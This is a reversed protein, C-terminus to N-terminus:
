AISRGMASAIILLVSSNYYVLGLGPFHIWVVTKEIKAESAVINPLLPRVVLYHDFVMWPGGSLVKERDVELDFSVMYYGHSIDIIDFGGDM